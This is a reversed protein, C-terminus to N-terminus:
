TGVFDDGGEVRVHRQELLVPGGGLIGRCCEGAAKRPIPRRSVSRLGQGQGKEGTLPPNRGTGEGGPLPSPHPSSCTARGARHVWFDDGSLNAQHRVHCDAAAARRRAVAALSVAEQFKEAPRIVHDAALVVMTARSRSAFDPAGGIRHVAGYRAQVTRRSHRERPVQPLQKAVADVLPAATLVWVNQESALPGLRDLTMQLMTREGALPLFQKPRAARSEPWFRTGAGGAM